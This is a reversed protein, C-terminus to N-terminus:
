EGFCKEPMEKGTLAGCFPRPHGRFDYWGRFVTGKANFVIACEVTVADSVPSLIPVIRCDEATGYIGYWGWARIVGVFKGEGIERGYPPLHPLALTPAWMVGDGFYENARVQWMEVRGALLWVGVALLWVGFALRKSM